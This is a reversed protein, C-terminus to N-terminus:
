LIDTAYQGERPCYIDLLLQNAVLTPVDVELVAAMDNM